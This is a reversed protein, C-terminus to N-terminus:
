EQSAPSFDYEAVYGARRESQGMLCFPLCSGHNRGATESSGAYSAVNVARCRGNNQERRLRSLLPFLM